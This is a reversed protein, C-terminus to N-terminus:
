KNKLYQKYWAIYYDKLSLKLFPKANMLFNSYEGNNMDFAGAENILEFKSIKTKKNLGRALVKIKEETFFNDYIKIRVNKV